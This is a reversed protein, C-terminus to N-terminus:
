GDMKTHLLQQLGSSFMGVALLGTAVWYIILNRKGM